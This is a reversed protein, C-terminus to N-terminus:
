TLNKNQLWNAVVLNPHRLDNEDEELAIGDKVYQVNAHGSETMLKKRLNCTNGKHHGKCFTCRGILSEQKSTLNTFM